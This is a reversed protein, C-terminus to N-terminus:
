EGGWGLGKEEWCGYHDKLLVSGIGGQKHGELPNKRLGQPEPSDM